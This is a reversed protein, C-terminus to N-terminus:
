RLYWCDFPANALGNIADFLQIRLNFVLTFKVLILSHYSICGTIGWWLCKASSRSSSTVTRMFDEANALFSGGHYFVKRFRRTYQWPPSFICPKLDLLPCAANITPLIYINEHPSVSDVQYQPWHNPRNYLGWIVYHNQLLQHFAFQGPFGFYEPSVQGLAVNDV